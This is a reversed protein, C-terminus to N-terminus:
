FQGELSGDLEGLRLIMSMGLIRGGVEKKPSERPSNTSKMVWALRFPDQAISYKAHIPMNRTSADVM